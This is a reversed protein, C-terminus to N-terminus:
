FSQSFFSNCGEKDVEPASQAVLGAANPGQSARSDSLFVQLYPLVQAWLDSPHAGTQLYLHKPFSATLKLVQLPPFLKRRGEYPGQSPRFILSFPECSFLTCIKSFKEM